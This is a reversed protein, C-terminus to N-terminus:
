EWYLTEILHFIDTEIYQIVPLLSDYSPRESIYFSGRIFHHLSDTVHFQMPSAANGRIDFLTGYVKRAPNEFIREDISHAKLAHKYALEHSDNVLAELNGNIRKYSLHVIAKHKEFVLNIWYPESYANEEIRIKSYVPYEFHYPWQGPLTQYSKEDFDIRFFGRPKPTTEENKDCAFTLFLCAFVFILLLKM